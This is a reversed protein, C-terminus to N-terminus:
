RRSGRLAERLATDKKESGAFAAASRVFREAPAPDAALHTHLYTALLSANSFGELREEGNSARLRLAEGSPRCVSYHFEHGSLSSGQTAVPNDSLVTARRYGLSLRSTM